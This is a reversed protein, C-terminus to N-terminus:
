IPALHIAGKTTGNETWGTFCARVIWTLITSFAERVFSVQRVCHVCTVARCSPISHMAFTPVLRLALLLLNQLAILLVIDLLQLILTHYSNLTHYSSIYEVVEQITFILSTLQTTARSDHSMFGSTQALSPTHM